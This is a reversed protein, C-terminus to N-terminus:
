NAAPTIFLRILTAADPLGTVDLGVDTQYREIASRTGPGYLGDVRSTYLGLDSLRQQALGLTQTRVQVDRGAHSLAMPTTAQRSRLGDFANIVQASAVEVLRDPAQQCASLTLQVLPSSTAFPTVDFTDNLMRNLGSAYGEIWYSFLLIDQERQENAATVFRSCPQSGAGAVAYDGSEDAAMVPLAGATTLSILAWSFARFASKKARNVSNGLGPALYLSPIVALAPPASFFKNM